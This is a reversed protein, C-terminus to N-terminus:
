AVPLLQLIVAGTCAACYPLTAFTQKIQNLGPNIALMRRMLKMLQNARVCPGYRLSQKGAHHGVLKNLASRQACSVRAPNTMFGQTWKGHLGAYTSCSRCELLQAFFLLLENELAVVSHVLVRKVYSIGIPQCSAKLKASDVDDRWLRLYVEDPTGIRPKIHM